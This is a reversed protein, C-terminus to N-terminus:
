YRFGELNIRIGDKIVYPSCDDKYYVKLRSYEDNVKGNTTYQEHYLFCYEDGVVVLIWGSYPSLPIRVKPSLIGKDLAEKLHKKSEYQLVSDDESHYKIYDLSTKSM